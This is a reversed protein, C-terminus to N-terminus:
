QGPRAEVSKMVTDRTEEIGAQAADRQAKTTCVKKSILQGTVQMTQCQIGDPNAPDTTAAVVHDKPPQTACGAVAILILPLYAKASSM